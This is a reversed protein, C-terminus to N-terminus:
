YEFFSNENVLEIKQHRVIVPENICEQGDLVFLHEAKNDENVTVTAEDIKQNQKNYKILGM